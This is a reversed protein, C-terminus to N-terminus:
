SIKTKPTFNHPIKKYIERKKLMIQFNTPSKIVGDSTNNITIPDAQVNIALLQILSPCGSPPNSGDPRSFRIKGSYKIAFPKDKPTFHQPCIFWFFTNENHAKESLKEYHFPLNDFPPNLVAGAAIKKKYIDHKIPDSDYDFTFFEFGDVCPIHGFMNEELSQFMKKPRAWDNSYVYKKSKKKINHKVQSNDQQNTYRHAIAANTQGQTTNQQEVM